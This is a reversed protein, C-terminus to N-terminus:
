AEITRLTLQYDESSTPTFGGVTQLIVYLVGSPTYVRKNAAANQTFLSSGYDVVTTLDTFGCYNPLSAVALDMAANDLIAAPSESFYHVRFAAMGSPVAALAVALSVDQIFARKPVGSFVHIASGANAATVSDAVGIVDLATYATTNEPRSIAVSIDNSVSVVENGPM